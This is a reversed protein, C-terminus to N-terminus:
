LVERRKPREGYGNFRARLHRNEAQLSEISDNDDDYQDLDRQAADDDEEERRSTGPSKLKLNIVKVSAAHTCLNPAPTSCSSRARKNSNFGSTNKEIAHPLWLLVGEPCWVSLASVISNNSKCQLLCVSNKQKKKQVLFM